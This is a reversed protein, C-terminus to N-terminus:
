KQRRLYGYLKKDILEFRNENYYIPNYENYENDYDRGVAYYKYDSLAGDLYNIWNIDAEQVGIIEPNYDKILRVIEDRRELWGQYDQYSNKINYSMARFYSGDNQKETLILGYDRPFFLYIVTITIAILIYLLKKIKNKM